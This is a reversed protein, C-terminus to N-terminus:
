VRKPRLLDEFTRTKALERSKQSIQPMNPKSEIIDEVIKTQKKIM